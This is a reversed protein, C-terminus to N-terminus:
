RKLVKMVGAHSITIGQEQLAASIDRYSKGEARLAKMKSIAEQETQIPVLVASKGAGEVRFGFPTRGGVFGGQGRKARQGDVQREKIRTREFEAVSAMISFFLKSVGNQTVPDAGMDSIILDVGQDKWLEVMNLADSASRFIRDLKSVIVVDGATLKAFMRGGQERRALAVSGSVGADVFVEDLDAGRMMAVGQAKKRQDELSTGMVQEATSVRCYAYIM